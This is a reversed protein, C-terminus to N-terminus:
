QHTCTSHQYLPAGDDDAIKGPNSIVHCCDEKCNRGTVGYETWMSELLPLQLPKPFVTNAGCRKFYSIDEPLVNGTIGAIFSDCGLARIERCATPGDMEPMEYDMLITDYPMDNQLALKVKEVAELGDKSQDVLHGRRELLRTLLKRNTLADDVVLILLSEPQDSTKKSDNSEPTKIDGDVLNSELRLHKCSSPLARDPVHYIPLTVTFMTGRELGRSSASITGNHQEVIGKAIYLGLGSGQGAQLENVNFQVGSRFLKATQDKTMGAGTDIVNMKLFGSEAVFIEEGGSLAVKQYESRNSDRPRVWSM